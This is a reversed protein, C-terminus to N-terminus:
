TVREPPGTLEPPKSYRASQIARVFMAQRMIARRHVGKEEESLKSEDVALNRGTAKIAGRIKSKVAHRNYAAAESDDCIHLADHYGKGTMTLAPLELRSRQVEIKKKLHLVRSWWRPHPYQIGLIQELERITITQGKVLQKVDVPYPRVNDM